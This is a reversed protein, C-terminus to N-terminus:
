KAFGVAGVAQSLERTILWKGNISEWELTKQVVDSYNDSRYTQVFKTLARRPDLMDVRLDTIRVDVGKARSLVSRRQAEWEQRSQKGSPQFGPAYSALYGATDTAKWASAWASLANSVAKAAVDTSNASPTQTALGAADNTAAGTVRASTAASEKLIEMARLNLAAKDVSYLMPGEAPCAEINEAGDNKVLQPLGDIPSRSLGLSVFLSGMGSHVRAFAIERDYEANAYARRASFLENETDLVDLLTRQGIDFQMRYADRAKEIALQHQDFYVLQESLKVTDNLAILLTQRMDRCAKDRQDRAVNLQEAFQRVRARDSLGNFLNWNLVVEASNSHTDGLAGSLNSGRESRLRLDLRPQFAANRTSAARNAARVNEISALFAPNREVAINMAERVDAPMGKNLGAPSPLEKPPPTGVLRQFRASVDHLNATDTLLNAESLALRGAAQELDVRRGVGAVAKKQIQEFVSRHRVYNEEAMGVLTRYRLVDHYARVVELTISESADYLEFLRVLTAHDLRKVDNSVVFGDYLLQTLTVANSHRSVSSPLTPDDYRDRGTGASVDVRPLFGGFAADREGKAAELAHWRALVEPNSLVAQQAADKLTNVQAFACCPVLFLMLLHVYTKKM